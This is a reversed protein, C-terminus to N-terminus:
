GECTWVSPHRGDQLGGALRRYAESSLAHTRQILKTGDQALRDSCSGLRIGGDFPRLGQRNFAIVAGALLLVGLSGVATIDDLLSMAM